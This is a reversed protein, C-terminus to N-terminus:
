SSEKMTPYLLYFDDISILAAEELQFRYTDYTYFTECKECYLIWYHSGGGYHDQITTLQQNCCSKGHNYKYATTAM